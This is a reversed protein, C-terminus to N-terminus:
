GLAELFKRLIRLQIVLIKEAEQQVVEECVFDAESDEEGGLWLLLALKDAGEVGEAQDM